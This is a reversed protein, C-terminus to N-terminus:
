DSVDGYRFGKRQLLRQLLMFVHIHEHKYKAVFALKIVAFCSAASLIGIIFNCHAKICKHMDGVDNTYSYAHTQLILKM